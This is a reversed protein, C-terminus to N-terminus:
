GRPGSLAQELFSILIEEHFPKNLFGLAGGALARERVKPEPSAAVFIVPLGYGDARLRDQLQIGSMGPMQVDSILCATDHLHGSTLFEEASGFTAVAHGLSRMFRRMATRFSENDDVITILKVDASQPKFSESM